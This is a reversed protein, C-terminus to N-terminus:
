PDAPTPPWYAPADIAETPGPWPPMTVGIAELRQPGTSVFQFRTRPPIRVSTGAAVDMIEDGICMRGRGAVFYWLEEVSRHQQAISCEGTALSFHAMSGADGTVLLRVQSGDPAIDDPKDPLVVRTSM